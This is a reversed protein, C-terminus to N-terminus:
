RWSATAAGTQRAKYVVGMGGRGLEGLIEYGPVAPRHAASRRCPGRREAQRSVQTCRAPTAVPSEGLVAGEEAEPAQPSIQAVAVIEAAPSATDLM